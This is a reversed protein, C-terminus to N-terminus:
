IIQTPGIILWPPPWNTLVRRSHSLSGLSEHLSPPLPMFKPHVSMVTAPAPCPHHVGLSPTWVSVSLGPLAVYLTDGAVYCTLKLQPPESHVVIPNPSSQWTFFLFHNPFYPSPIDYVPIQSKFTYLTSQNNWMDLRFPLHGNPVYIRM